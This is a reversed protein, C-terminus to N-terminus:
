DGRRLHDIIRYAGHVKDLPLRVPEHRHNNSILVADDGDLYFTKLRAVRPGNQDLIIAALGSCVPQDGDAIVLDGDAFPPNMSDGVVRVAFARPPGGIHEVYADAEGPAFQEAEDTSEGKGAAIRGIIPVYHAPVREPLEERTVQRAPLGSVRRTQGAAMGAPKSAETTGSEEYGQPPTGAGSILWEPNVNCAKAIKEITQRYPAQHANMWNSVRSDSTGVAQAFARQSGRFRTEILFRLRRVLLLKREKDAM